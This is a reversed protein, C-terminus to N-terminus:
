LLDIYLGKCPQSLDPKDAMVYVNRNATLAMSVTSFVAQVNAQYMNEWMIWEEAPCLATGNDLRFLVAGPLFSASVATVKGHIEEDAVAISSFMLFCVYAWFCKMVWLGQRESKM